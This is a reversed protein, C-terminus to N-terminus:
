MGNLDDWDTRRTKKVEVTKQAAAEAEDEKNLISKAILNSHDERPSMLPNEDEKTANRIPYYTKTGKEAITVDTPIGSRKILTNRVKEWDIRNVDKGAFQRIKGIIGDQIDVTIQRNKYELEDIQIDNPEAEIYLDNNIWAMKVPQNISTVKTGVPVNKYMWTIHEEYMRVCGSSARRGIAKPKDTGHIRYSPWGFYLAYAGLPNDKGPQVVEPLEPNEQRMRPTPRWQPAKKKDVITTTGMPTNLGERGIGIPFTLPKGGNPPFYYVRLEGTNLVLGEHVSNPLLHWDPIIVKTGTRPLWPDIEPNAALLEAYGVQYKEAVDMMLEDKQITTTKLTGISPSEDKAHATGSLLLLAILVAQSNKLIRYPLFM